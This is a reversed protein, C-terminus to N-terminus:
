QKAHKSEHNQESVCFLAAAVSRRKNLNRLLVNKQPVKIFSPTAKFFKWVSGPWPTQTTWDGTSRLECGGFITGRFPTVVVNPGLEAAPPSLSPSITGVM